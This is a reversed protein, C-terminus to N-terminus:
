SKVGLQGLLENMKKYREAQVGTALAKAHDKQGAKVAPVIDGDRTKKFEEWITKLEKYLKARDDSISPDALALAIAADVGSSAKAIEAELPEIKAAEADLLTILSERAKTLLVKADYHPCAPAQAAAFSVMALTVLLFSLSTSLWRMMTEDGLKPSGRGHPARDAYPQVALAMYVDQTSMASKGRKRVPHMM